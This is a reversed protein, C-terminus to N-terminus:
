LPKVIEAFADEMGSLDPMAAYFSAYQLAEDIYPALAHIYEKRAHIVENRFAENFHAPTKSLHRWVAYHFAGAPLRPADTENLCVIKAREMAEDSGDYNRAFDAMKKFAEFSALVDPDCTSGAWINFDGNIGQQHENFAEHILTFQTM